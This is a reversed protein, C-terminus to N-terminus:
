GIECRKEIALELLKSFLFFQYYGRIKRKLDYFDVFGDEGM